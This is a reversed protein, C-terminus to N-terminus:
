LPLSIAVITRNHKLAPVYEMRSPALVFLPLMLTKIDLEYNMDFQM